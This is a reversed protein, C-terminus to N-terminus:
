KPLITIEEAAARPPYIMIRPGPTFTAQVRQGVKLDEFRARVAKGGAQRFVHTTKTVVLVARESETDPQKKGVVTVYGRLENKKPGEGPPAIKEIAGRVAFAPPKPPAAQATTVACFLTAAITLKVPKRWDVL